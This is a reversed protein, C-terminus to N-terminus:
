EKAMVRRLIAIIRWRMAFLELSAEDQIPPGETDPMEVKSVTRGAARESGVPAGVQWEGDVLLIRRTNISVAGEVESVGYWCLLWDGTNWDERKWVKGEYAGTPNTLSYETLADFIHKPVLAHTDDIEIGSIPPQNWYKGYPHVIPPIVNPHALYWRHEAPSLTENM